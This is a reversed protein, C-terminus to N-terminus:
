DGDTEASTGERPVVVRIRTGEGPATTVDVRGGVADVRERASALGIHGLRLADEARGPPMGRGDDSVELVIDNGEDKLAAVLFTADAHKVTNHVFERLLAVLLEDVGTPWQAACEFRVGFGAREGGQEVIARLRADLDQTSASAPHLDGVAHRVQRSAADLGVRARHVAEEDEDLRELDLRVAYLEQLVDDHLADAIQRRMREESRLVEVLLRRRASALDEVRDAHELLQREAERRERLDHQVVALARPEGTVPHEILFANVAVPIAEGTRFHQLATEGRFHGEGRITPGSVDLFDQKGRDTLYDFITYTRAEEQSEIGLLRRGGANVYVTRGDLDALGVFDDSGEVLAVFEQTQVLQNVLDRRTEVNDILLEALEAFRTIREPADGPLPRGQEGAVLVVGWFRDATGIPAAWGVPRCLVQRGPRVTVDADGLSEVRRTERARSALEDDFAEGPVAVPAGATWQSAVEFDGARDRLLVAATAGLMEAAERAVAALVVSEDAGGLATRTLRMLAQREATQSELELSAEASGATLALIEAYVSLDRESGEPLRDTGQAGAYVIGWQEGRVVVPAGIVVDIGLASVRRGADSEDEDYRAARTAEGSARIRAAIMEPEIPFRSGPTLVPHGPAAASGVVVLEDGDFRLVWSADSGFLELVEDAIAAALDTGSAAKPSLRRLSEVLVKDSIL